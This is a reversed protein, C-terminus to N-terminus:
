QSSIEGNDYYDGVHASEYTGESVSIWGKDDGNVVYLRYSDPVYQYYGPTNTCRQQAGTGTCSTTGAVWYEYEEVYKKKEITGQDPACASVLLLLLFLVVIKLYKM